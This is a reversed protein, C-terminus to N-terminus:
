TYNAKFSTTFGNLDDYDGGITGIYNRNRYEGDNFSGRISTVSGDSVGFDYQNREENDNFESFIVKAYLKQGAEPSWEVGGFLGNNWRELKYNRISFSTAEGTEEDYSAERNDTVQDRLYHSGGLVVGFTDNAWSARLSGQRQQGGGHAMFGYGIDGDIHFGKRDLPSYTKLDITAVIADAQLDPTLSKNIVMESLMVAPIADFRFARTDGGEDVGVMPVGDISVSTWRNPAGRVQIYREQGQDRQVAVAPLRALAAAANQDPFRAAADASAIDALNDAARKARVSAKQSTLISGTVVIEDESQTTDDTESAFANSGPAFLAFAAGCLM